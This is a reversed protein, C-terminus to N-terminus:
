RRTELEVLKAETTRALEADLHRQIAAISDFGYDKRVRRAIKEDTRRPDPMATLAHPERHTRHLNM